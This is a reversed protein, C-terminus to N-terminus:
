LHSASLRGSRDSWLLADANPLPAGPDRLAQLWARSSGPFRAKFLPQLERVLSRNRSTDRVVFAGSVVWAGGHERTVREHVLLKKADLGRFSAGVDDLWDWIEVTASERRLVRILVVDVSRSRVAPDLTLEPLAHWGGPRAEEIVASQRRAHEIDRPHDAGPAGELFAALQLGVAAAAIAWTELAAGKGLARELDSWRAQSIGCRDAAEQQSCGEIARADRLATALRTAIGDARLRGRRAHVGSRRRQDPRGM